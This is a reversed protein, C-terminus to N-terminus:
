RWDKRLYQWGMWKRLAFSIRERLLCRADERLMGAVECAHLAAVACRAVACAAEDRPLFIGELLDAGSRVAWVFVERRLVEFNQGLWKDPLPVQAAMVKRLSEVGPRDAWNLALALQAGPSALNERAVEELIENEASNGLAKEWLDVQVRLCAAGARVLCERGWFRLGWMWAEMERFLAGDALPWAALEGMQGDGNESFYAMLARKEVVDLPSHEMTSPFFRMRFPNHVSALPESDPVKM